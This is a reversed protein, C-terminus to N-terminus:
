RVITAVRSLTTGSYSCAGFAAMVCDILCNASDSLPSSRSEWPSGALPAPTDRSNLKQDFSLFYVWGPSTIGMSPGEKSCSQKLQRQVEATNSCGSALNM